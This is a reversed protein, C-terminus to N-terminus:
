PISIAHVNEYWAKNLEKQLNKINGSALAHAIKDITLVTNDGLSKIIDESNLTGNPGAM